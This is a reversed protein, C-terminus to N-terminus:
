NVAYMLKYKSIFKKGRRNYIHERQSRSTKLSLEYGIKDYLPKDNKYYYM